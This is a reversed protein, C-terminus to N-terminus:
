ISQFNQIMCKVLRDGPYAALTEGCVGIVNLAGTQSGTMDGEGPTSSVSILNGGQIAIVVPMQYAGGRYVVGCYYDDSATTALICGDIVSGASIRVIQGVSLSSGTNNILTICDENVFSKYGIAITSCVSVIAAEIAEPAFSPSVVGGTAIAMTDLATPNTTTMLLVRVGNSLLSPTLVNNIYDIDAQTYDDDNGGPYADTILIIMKAVNNRFAGAFGNNIDATGMDAPEPFNNGDGLPMVGNLKNLQTTFSTINNTAMMQMATIWQYTGNLGTNIKRQIPPLSTYNVNSSYDSVTGSTYEDFIVLGLRYNNNSEVIIKNIISAVSTKIGEIADSMSGTYDVLFVVDMGSNCGADIQYSNVYEPKKIDTNWVSNGLALYNQPIADIGAKTKAGFTFRWEDYSM